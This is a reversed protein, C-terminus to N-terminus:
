CNQQEVSSSCLHLQLYSGDSNTIVLVLIYGRGDVKTCHRTSIHLTYAICIVSVFLFCPCIEVLCDEMVAHGIVAFKSCRDEAPVAAIQQFVHALILRM